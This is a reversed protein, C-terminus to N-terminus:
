SKARIEALQLRAVATQFQAHALLLAGRKAEVEPHGNDYHVKLETFEDSALELVIEAASVRQRSREIDTRPRFPEDKPTADHSM